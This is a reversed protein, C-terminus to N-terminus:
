ECHGCKSCKYVDFIEGNFSTSTKKCMNSNCKSCLRCKCSTDCNLNPIGSHDDFNIRIFESMMDQLEEETLDDFINNM